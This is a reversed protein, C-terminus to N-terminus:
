NCLTHGGLGFAPAVCPQEGLKRLNSKHQEAMFPVFEAMRAAAVFGLCDDICDLYNPKAM